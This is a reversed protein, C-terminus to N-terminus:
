TAENDFPTSPNEDTDEPNQTSAVDEDSVATLGTATGSVQAHQISAPQNQSSSKKSAPTELQTTSAGFDDLPEALAERIIRRPDYQRPDYKAWDIDNFDTGTEEKFSNKAGEAMQRLKRIWDRLSRTYEPIKEPGLLLLVLVVLVLLESGNIGFFNM